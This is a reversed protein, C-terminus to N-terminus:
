KLIQLELTRLEVLDQKPTKLNKCKCTGTLKFIVDAHCLNDYLLM